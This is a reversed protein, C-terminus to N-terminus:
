SVRRVDKFAAKVRDLTTEDSSRVEFWTSDYAIVVIWPEPSTAAHYGRFEAFIAQHIHRSIQILREGSVPIESEALDELEDAVIDGTVM